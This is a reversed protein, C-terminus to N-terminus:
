GNDEHRRGSRGLMYGGAGVAATGGIVWNTATQKVKDLKHLLYAGGVIVPALVGGAGVAVSKPDIHQEEKVTTKPFLKSYENTDTKPNALIKKVDSSSTDVHTKGELHLKKLKNVDNTDLLNLKAGGEHTKITVNHFFNGRPMTNAQGPPLMNGKDDLFSKYVNKDKPNLQNVDTMNNKVLKHFESVDAHNNFNFVRKASNKLGVFGEQIPSAVKMVPTDKDMQKDKKNKLMTITTFLADDAFQTLAATKKHRHKEQMLTAIAVAVDDAGSVAYSVAPRLFKNKFKFKRSGTLHNTMDNVVYATVASKPIAQIANLVSEHYSEGNKWRSVGFELGGGIGGWIAANLLNSKLRPNM